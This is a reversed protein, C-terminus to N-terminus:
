PGRKRICQPTQLSPTPRRWHPSHPRSFSLPLCAAASVAQQQPILEWCEMPIGTADSPSLSRTLSRICGPSLQQCECFTTEGPWNLMRRGEFRKQRRPQITHAAWSNSCWAVDKKCVKLRLSERENMERREAPTILGPVETRAKRIKRQQM